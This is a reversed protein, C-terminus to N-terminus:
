KAATHRELTGVPAIEWGTAARGRPDEALLGYLV